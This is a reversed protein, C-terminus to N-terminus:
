GGLGGKVERGEPRFDFFDGVIYKSHGAWVSERVIGPGALLGPEGSVTPVSTLWLDEHGMAKIRIFRGADRWNESSDKRAYTNTSESMSSLKM